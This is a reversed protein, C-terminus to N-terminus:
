RTDIATADCHYERRGRADASLVRARSQRYNGLRATPWVLWRRIKDIM